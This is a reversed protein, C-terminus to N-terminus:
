IILKKFDGLGDERTLKSIYGDMSFLLSDLKEYPFLIDSFGLNLVEKEKSYCKDVTERVAEKIEQNFSECEEKIIEKLRYQLKSKKFQFFIGGLINGLGALITGDNNPSFYSLGKISQGDIELILDEKFSVEKKDVLYKYESIQVLEQWNLLEREIELGSLSLLEKIIEGLEEEKYLEKLVYDEKEGQGLADINLDIRKEVELLYNEFVGDISDELYGILEDRATLLRDEKDIYIKNYQDIKGLFSDMAELLDRVILDNGQAKSKARLERSKNIFLDRIKRQLQDLGSKEILDRDDELTGEFGELASIGILDSFKDGFLDMASNMVRNLDDEGGNRRVLDIKNIVGIIDDRRGGVEKLALELEDLITKSNESSIAIGDMLWLVGDAKYYYNSINGKQALGSLYQNLGPTDVILCRDLLWNREVGWVVESIDSVYEYEEWLKQRLEDRLEKTVPGEKKYNVLQKKFEQNFKTKAERTKEEERDVLEQAKDLSLLKESGGLYKVIAQNKKLDPSYVDIKWTEPVISTKAVESGVLSNLVTSKGINGNGVIFIMLKDDFNQYIELFAQQGLKLKRAYEETFKGMSGTFRSLYAELDRSKEFFGQRVRDLDDEERSILINNYIREMEEALRLKDLAM